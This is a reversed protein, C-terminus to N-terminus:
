GAEAVLWNSAALAPVGVVAIRSDFVRCGTRESPRRQVPGQDVTLAPSDAVPAEVPTLPRRHARSAQTDVSSLREVAAVLLFGAEIRHALLRDLRL